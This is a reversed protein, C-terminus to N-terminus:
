DEAEAWRVHAALDQGFGAAMLLDRPDTEFERLAGRLRGPMGGSLKLAALRCRDARESTVPGPGMGTIRLLLHAAGERDGPAFMQELKRQVLASLPPLEDPM